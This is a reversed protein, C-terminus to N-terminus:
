IIYYYFFIVPECHEQSFELLKLFHHYIVNFVLKISNNKLMLKSIINKM